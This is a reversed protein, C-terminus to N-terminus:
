AEARLVRPLAQLIRPKARGGEWPRAPRNPGTVRYMTLSEALDEALMAMASWWVEHEARECAAWFPSPTLEWKNYAGYVPRHRVPSYGDAEVEMAGGAVVQIVRRVFWAPRGNAGRVMRRQPAEAEWGPATGMMAHKRVMWAASGKFQRVGDAGIVAVFDLARALVAWGLDGWEEPSAMDAFPWWGEPVELTMGEMRATAAHVALADPHPESQASYDPTVGYKNRVDVTDVVAMLEGFQSVGDWGPRYGPSSAIVPGSRQAKPLEERYAWVLLQEIDITKKVVALGKM